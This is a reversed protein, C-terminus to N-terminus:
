PLAVHPWWRSHRTTRAIHTHACNLTPRNSLPSLLYLKRSRHCIEATMCLHGARPPEAYGSQFAWSIGMMRCCICNAPQGSRLKNCDRQQGSYSHSTGFYDPPNLLPPRPEAASFYNRRALWLPDPRLSNVAYVVLVARNNALVLEASWVWNSSHLDTGEMSGLHGIKPV